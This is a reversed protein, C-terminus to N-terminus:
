QHLELKKIGNRSNGIHLIMDDAFLSPKVKEKLIQIEKKKKERIQNSQTPSKEISHQIFTTLTPM